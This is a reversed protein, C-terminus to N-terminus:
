LTITNNLTGAQIRENLMAEFEIGATLIQEGTEGEPLNGGTNYIEAYCGRTVVYQWGSVAMTPDESVAGDETVRCNIRKIVQQNNYIEVTGKFVFGSHTSEINVVTTVNSIKTTM